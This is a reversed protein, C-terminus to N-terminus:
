RPSRSARGWRARTRASRRRSARRRRRGRLVGREAVSASAGPRTARRSARPARRPRRQRAAPVDVRTAAGCTRAVSVVPAPSANTPANATPRARPQSAASAARSPQANAASLTVRGPVWDDNALRSDAAAISSRIAVRRHHRADGRRRWVRATTLTCGPTRRRRGTVRRAPVRHRAPRRPRARRRGPRSARWRRTRGGREADARVGDDPPREGGQQRVQGVGAIARSRSTAEPAARASSSSSRIPPPCGASASRANTAM